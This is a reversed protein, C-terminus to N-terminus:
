GAGLLWGFARSSALDCEFCLDLSDPLPQRGLTSGAMVAQDTTRRMNPPSLLPFHDGHLVSRHYAFDYDGLTSQSKFLHHSRFPSTKFVLRWCSQLYSWFERNLRVSHILDNVFDISHIVQLLIQLPTYLCLVLCVLLESPCLCSSFYPSWTQHVLAQRRQNLCHVVILSFYHDFLLLVLSLVWTATATM